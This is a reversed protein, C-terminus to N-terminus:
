KLLNWTLMTESAIDVRAKKRAVQNLHKPMIGSGPRKASIVSKSLQEGKKLSTELTLSRRALKATNQESPLIGQHPKGKAQEIARIGATLNKFLAPDLSFYHDVGKMKRDLTFHREIVVAGMSVAAFSAFNDATHDSFGAPLKFVKGIERMRNLHVNEYSCPYNSTCHLLIIKQNGTKKITNVAERIEQFTAMGCSMLIPKGKAAIHAVLPLHTVDCSAIKYAPVNLSELLDASGDDFPTSFFVIGLKKSFRALEQYDSPKLEFRRYLDVQLKPLTPDNVGYVRAKSSVLKEAKFTQFKVANAGSAQAAEIMRKALKLNGNHNFGIEAIVFCPRGEGIEYKGIKIM